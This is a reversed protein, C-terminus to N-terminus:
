KKLNSIRKEMAAIDKKQKATAKSDQQFIDEKIFGIRDELDNIKERNSGGTVATDKHETKLLEGKELKRQRGNAHLPSDSNGRIMGNKKLWYAMNNITM